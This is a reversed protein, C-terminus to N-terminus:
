GSSFGLLRELSLSPHPHPWSLHTFRALRSKSNSNYRTSSRRSVNYRSTCPPNPMLWVRRCKRPVPLRRSSPRPSPSSPRARHPDTWALTPSPLMGAPSRESRAALTSFCRKPLARCSLLRSSSPPPSASLLRSSLLRPHWPSSATSRCSLSSTQFRPPDDAIPEPTDPIAIGYECQVIDAENVNLDFDLLFLLQKEM